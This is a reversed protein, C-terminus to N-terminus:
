YRYNVSKAKERHEVSVVTRSPNWMNLARKVYLMINAIKIFLRSYCTDKGSTDHLSIDQSAFNLNLQEQVEDEPQKLGVWHSVWKKQTGWHSESWHCHIRHQYYPERKEIAFCWKYANDSSRSSGCVWLMVTLVPVQLDRQPKSFNGIMAGRFKRYCINLWSLKRKNHDNNSGQVCCRKMQRLVRKFHSKVVRM